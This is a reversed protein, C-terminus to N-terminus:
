EKGSSGKAKRPEKKRRGDLWPRQKSKQPSEKGHAEPSREYTVAFYDDRFGAERQKLNDVDDQSWDAAWMVSNSQIWYHSRCPADWRGISPYLSISQGDFILKWDVPTLPTVVKDGCGCLCKHIVTGFEVSVYVVGDELPSPVREVFRHSVKRVKSM